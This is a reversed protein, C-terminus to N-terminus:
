RTANSDVIIVAAGTFRGERLDDLADNVKELPYPHVETRVPVEPALALFEEGDRRTLNAVSCISREEWLISYPFSPIDSMHIGACVVIGGRDVARLAAPVLEGVPAFIIAADLPEPPLEDSSGTWVAGLEAAFQQAQEDGKRTFAYVERKQYRAVQILIHAAAGFGYFGLKRADGAMRLARYGILGACLLPAAQLDRYAAPIPFCFRFDAVCKEAFGGNIQYGTYRAEDCLNERHSNCFRCHGCSGGLWPVGVRDGPSFGSVGDAIEIVTGIIQHGLVIPLNPETLDGDVVHLDTRCVGCAQVKLLMQGANPTPDPLDVARLPEGPTDLIMAKM